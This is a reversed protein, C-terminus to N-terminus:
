DSDSDLDARKRKLSTSQAFMNRDNAITCLKEWIVDSSLHHLDSSSHAVTVICAAQEYQSEEILDLKFVDLSYADVILNLAEEPSSSAEVRERLTNEASVQGRKQEWRKLFNGELPVFIVDICKDHYVGRGGAPTPEVARGTIHWPYGLRFDIKGMPHDAIYRFQSERTLLFGSEFLPGGFSSPALLVSMARGQLGSSYSAITCNVPQYEDKNTTGNKPHYYSRILMMNYMVQILDELSKPTALNEIKRRNDDLIGRFYAVVDLFDKPIHQWDRCEKQDTGMDCSKMVTKFLKSVYKNDTAFWINRFAEAQNIADTIQGEDNRYADCTLFDKLSASLKVDNLRDTLSEERNSKSPRSSWSRYNTQFQNETNAKLTCNRYKFLNGAVVAQIHTIENGDSTPCNIMSNFAFPEMSMPCNKGFFSEKIMKDLSKLCKLSKDVSIQCSSNYLTNLLLMGVENMIRHTTTLRCYFSLLPGLCSYSAPEMNCQAVYQPNSKYSNMQKKGIVNTMTESVARQVKELILKMDSCVEEIHIRTDTQQQSTEIKPRELITPQRLRYSKPNFLKLFGNEKVEPVIDQVLRKVVKRQSLAKTEETAGFMYDADGLPGVNSGSIANFNSLTLAAKPLKGEQLFGTKRQIMNLRELGISDKLTYRQLMQWTKAALHPNFGCARMWAILPTLLEREKVDYGFNTRNLFANREQKHKEDDSINAKVPKQKGLTPRNKFIVNESSELIILLMGANIAALADWDEVNELPINHYLQLDSPSQLAADFDNMLQPMNACLIPQFYDALPDSNKVTIMSKLNNTLHQKSLDKAEKSSSKCIQKVFDVNKTLGYAMANANLYSTRINEAVSWQYFPIRNEQKTNTSFLHMCAPQFIEKNRSAEPLDVTESVGCITLNGDMLDVLFRKTCVVYMIVSEDRAHFCDDLLYRIVDQSKKLLDKNPSYNWTLDTDDTIEAAETTSIVATSSLLFQENHFVFAQEHHTTLVLENTDPTQVVALNPGINSPVTLGYLVQLLAGPTQEDKATFLKTIAPHKAFDIPVAYITAPSSGIIDMTAERTSAM